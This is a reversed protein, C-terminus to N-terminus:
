ILKWGWQSKDKNFSRIVTGAFPMGNVLNRREVITPHVYIDDIFGFKKGEPIKIEGEINKFYQNKFEEDTAKVATYIKYLSGVSGSNIRVKIVEGVKVDRFFKEYKFFGFLAESIIFNLM